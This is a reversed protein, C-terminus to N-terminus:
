SSRRINKPLSTEWRGNCELFRRTVVPRWLMRGRLLAVLRPRRRLSSSPLRGRSGNAYRRLRAVHRSRHKAGTASEGAPLAPAAGVPFARRLGRPVEIWPWLRAFEDLLRSKGAGPLGHVLVASGRTGPRSPGLATCLTAIEPARGALPSPWGADDPAVFGPVRWSQASPRPCVRARMTVLPFAGDRALSGNEHM